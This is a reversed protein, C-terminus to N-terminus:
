EDAKGEILIELADSVDQATWQVPELKALRAAEDKAATCLDATFVPDAVAPRLLEAQRIIITGGGM